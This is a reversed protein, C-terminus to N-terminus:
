KFNNFKTIRSETITIPKDINFNSRYKDYLYEMIYTKRKGSQLMQEATDFIEQNLNEKVLELTKDIQGFSKESIKKEEMIIHLIGYLVDKKLVENHTYEKNFIDKYGLDVKKM